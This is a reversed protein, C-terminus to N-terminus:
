TITISYHRILETPLLQLAAWTVSRHVLQQTYVKRDAFTPNSGMHCKVLEVDNKCFRSSNSRQIPLSQATCIQALGCVNGYHVQFSYSHWPASCIVCYVLRMHVRVRQAYMTEDASCSCGWWPEKWKCTLWFRLNKKKNRVTRELKIKIQLFVTNNKVLQLSSSDLSSSVVMLVIHYCFNQLLDLFIVYWRV